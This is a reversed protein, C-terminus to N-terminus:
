DNRGQFMVETEEERRTELTGPLGVPKSRNHNEASVKRTCKKLFHPM